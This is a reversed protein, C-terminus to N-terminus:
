NAASKLDNEIVITEVDIQLHRQPHVNASPILPLFKYGEQITQHM